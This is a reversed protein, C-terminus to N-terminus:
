LNSTYLKINDQNVLFTTTLFSKSRIARDLDNREFEKVLVM